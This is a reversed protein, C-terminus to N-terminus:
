LVVPEDPLLNRNEESASLPPCGTRLVSEIGDIAALVGPMYDGAALRQQLAICVDQWAHPAAKIGRDAIIEIRGEGLSLYLLVGTNLPTDWARLRGFVELARLHSDAEHAPAVAEIAVVLEGSHHTESQRIHAAIQELAADHFYKRRLWYGQLRTLGIWSKWTRRHM